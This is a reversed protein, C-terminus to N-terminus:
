LSLSFAHGTNAVQVALTGATTPRLFAMKLGARVSVSALMRAKLALIIPSQMGSFDVQSFDILVHCHLM